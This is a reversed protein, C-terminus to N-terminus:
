QQHGSIGEALLRELLATDYAQLDQKTIQRAYIKNAYTQQVLHGDKLGSVTVFVIVVVTSAVVADAPPLVDPVAIQAAM